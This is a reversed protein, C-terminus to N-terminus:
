RGTPRGVYLLSSGFPLPLSRTVRHETRALAALVRNLPAPPVGPPPPDEPAPTLHEVARVGLKAPVLWQYLYRSNVETLGAERTASRLSAKSYRTYHQNIDDHRTWLAMLAPVTILVHGAPELLTVLHRLADVPEPLHELVDLMVILGFRHNPTFTEDFRRVHIRGDEREPESVLREDPEIGEVSAALERLKPFFLGDGCGIDLARNWGGTPQVRRLEALVTAERSRWWWHEQYLRRYHQGYAYDM